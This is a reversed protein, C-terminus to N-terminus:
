GAVPERRLDQMFATFAKEPLGIGGRNLREIDDGAKLRPKGALSPEDNTLSM